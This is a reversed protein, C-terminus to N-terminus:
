EYRLAEIPDIRSARSAPFWVAFLAVASLVVPVTIFVTPDRAQVGFLFSALFRSLGWATGIGVAVGVLALCMGQFVITKKGHSAGAGLALRIGIEQTRQEV